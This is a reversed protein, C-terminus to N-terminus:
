AARAAAVRAAPLLVRFTSGGGPTSAVEISGGSQVVIGCATALGLGTGKGADKTTFFPEFIRARTEEDMGCGSDAVSIAVHLGTELEVLGTSITLDGGEPMADRANLAINMLVQTLQDPDAMVEAPTEDLATRLVIQQGITRRLIPELQRVVGNPDLPQPRLVQKRSFALLQRTLAAAHSVATRLSAVDDTRPDGDEFSLALLEAYGSIATLMNNFDHAIGGALRGVAEMKQAHRLNDELAKRETVDLLFGQTFVPIGDVSVVSSTDQVWVYRGDAHRLRFELSFRDGDRRSREREESVAPVDDPHVLRDVLSPDDLWEEVAYGLLAEMQPSVYLLRPPLSATTAYTVLPLNEVLEQYRQEALARDAEAARVDTLDRLFGVFLVETAHTRTITLEVPLRTGDARVAELLLRQGVVKSEGTEVLRRLGQEHRERLEPPVILESLRRGIAKDRSYGFTREAAANFERVIGAADMTVICDLAAEVIAQREAAVRTAAENAARLELETRVARAVSELLEVDSDSWERRAHELVCVVGGVGGS